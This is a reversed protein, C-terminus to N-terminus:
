NENRGGARKEVLVAGEIVDSGHSHGPCHLEIQCSDGQVVAVVISSSTKSVMVEVQIPEAMVAEMIDIANAAIILSTLTVVAM